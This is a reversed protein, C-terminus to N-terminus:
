TRGSHARTLRFRIYGKAAGSGFGRAAVAARPVQIEPWQLVCHGEGGAASRTDARADADVNGGSGGRRPQHKKANDLVRAIYSIIHTTYYMCIYTQTYTHSHTLTHTIHVPFVGALVNKKEFVCKERREITRISLGCVVFIVSRFFYRLIRNIRVRRNKSQEVYYRSRGM